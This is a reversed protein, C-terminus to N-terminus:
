RVEPPAGRIDPPDRGFVVNGVATVASEFTLLNDPEVYLQGNSHVPGNVVFPQGCSVEMEGSSYMAFQFIPIRVLQLSELVGATVQQVNSVECADSVINYTSAFGTLGSYAGNLVTYNSVAGQQVYTSNTNGQADSFQWDTWYVSDTTAPVMQRYLNLNAVVQGEGSNLYDSALQTNVKETAAEAAAIARTYQNSRASLRANGASWSLLGTLLILAVATMIMTIVLANGAASLRSTSLQNEREFEESRPAVCSAQPAPLLNPAPNQQPRSYFQLSCHVVFNNQANTLVNGLYDQAEFLDTNTVTQAIVQNTNLDSEFRIFTKNTVNLYYLVYNNTNTPSYIMVGDGTLPEGAVHAVFVGNSINGVVASSCNRIEGTMKGM